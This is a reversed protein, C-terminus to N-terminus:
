TVIDRTLDFEKVTWKVQQKATCLHFNSHSGVSVMM